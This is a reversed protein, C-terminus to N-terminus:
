GALLTRLTAVVSEPTRVVQRYTFRVVRYGAALLRQDRLRDREFAVDHDHYRRGDTEAILGSAPWLFDVGLGELEANVRPMPLNAGTCLDLFREELASRTLTFGLDHENLLMALVRAGRRRGAAAIANALERRDVIRLAYAEGLARQLQRVPLRDAVDVLTRASTTVPVDQHRTVAHRGLTSSRHVALGPRGRHSGSGVTVHVPGDAVPRIRWLAAASGHSLVADPGGALVGALWRAHESLRAHGVAYVGRHVPHLRVRALWGDIAGAGIGMALLQWRGVIGHQRYALAAVGADPAHSISRRM